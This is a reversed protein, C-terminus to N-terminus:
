GIRVPVVIAPETRIVVEYFTQSLCLSPIFDHLDHENIVVLSQNCSFIISHNKNIIHQHNTPLFFQQIVISMWLSRQHRKGISPVKDSWLRHSM